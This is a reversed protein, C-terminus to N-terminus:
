INKAPMGFVSFNIADFLSVKNDSEFLVRQKKTEDTLEAKMKRPTRGNTALTYGGEETPMLTANFGSCGSLITVVMVLLLVRKM